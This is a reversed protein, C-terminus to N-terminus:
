TNGSNIKIKKNEERLRQAEDASRRSIKCPTQHQM